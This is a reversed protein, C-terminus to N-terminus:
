KFREMRARWVGGGYNEFVIDYVMGGKILTLHQTMWDKRIKSTVYIPEESIHFWERLEEITCIDFDRPKIPKMKTLYNELYGDM